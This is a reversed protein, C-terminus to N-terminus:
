EAATPRTVRGLPTLAVASGAKTADARREGGGIQIAAWALASAVLARHSSRM